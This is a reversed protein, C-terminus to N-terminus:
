LITQKEDANGRARHDIRAADTLSLGRITEFSGACLLVLTCLGYHRECPTRLILCYQIRDFSLTSKRRIFLGKETSIGEASAFCRCLTYEKPIFFTVTLFFLVAGLIWLIVAATASFLFCGGAAAASLLFVAAARIRWVSIAKPSILNKEQQM